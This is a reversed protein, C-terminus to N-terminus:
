AARRGRGRLLWLGLLAIVVLVAIIPILTDTSSAQAAGGGSPSPSATAAVSAIATTSPLAGPTASADASPSAPISPGAIATFTTTGRDIDGDDASKSTWRVTFAGESPSTSGLDLTLRKHDTADVTGGQAVVTGAADVLVLNSGAADLNETFTAVIENPWPVTAKDAPTMTDLEAHAQVATLGLGLWLAAAILGATVRRLRVPTM